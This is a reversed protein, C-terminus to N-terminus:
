ETQAHMRSAGAALEPLLESIRAGVQSAHRPHVGWETRRLLLDDTCVVAEEQVLQRLETRAFDNDIALFSAPDILQLRQPRSPRGSQGRYPVGQWRPNCAFLSQQAVLRATTFKIGSVSVVGSPGGNKAHVYIAPRRTLKVGGASKVPLYGAFIRRIDSVQLNFGPVARNLDGIVSDLLADDLGIRSLNRNWPAHITGLLIGGNWPYMFYIRSGDGQGGVALAVKSLPQKDLVLNAALSPYLFPKTHQDFKAALDRSWAGACNIIAAARYEITRGSLRDCARIGAARGSETLLERAEMYNLARAGLSCSWRLIEMLIRTSSIMLADHWLAAGELQPRRVLPFLTMTEAVDLVRGPPLQVENTVAERGDASLWDSVALALKFMSRRKLGDRYLPMLCPLPELLDPFHRCFWRREEVSERFRSLDLNQLYRLGGHLIRLSNWSTAGGFDDRELLLSRLGRRAAELSVCVGYIGGGVVIVDYADRSYSDPNRLIVSEM